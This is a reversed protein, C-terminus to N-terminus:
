FFESSDVSNFPWGNRYFCKKAIADTAAVNNAINLSDILSLQTNQKRLEIENIALIHKENSQSVEVVKRKKENEIELTAYALNMESRSDSDVDPCSRIAFTKAILGGTIHAKKTRSTFTIFLNKEILTILM